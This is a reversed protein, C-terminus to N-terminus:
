PDSYNFSYGFSFFYRLHPDDTNKSIGASIPGLRSRFSAEIGYGFSLNEDKLEEISFEEDLDGVPFYRYTGILSTGARLFLNRFAVKQFSIGALGINSASVEEYNYGYARFEGLNVRRRGSIVFEDIFNNSEVDALTLGVGLDGILSITNGLPFFKQAQATVQFYLGPTLGDLIDQYLDIPIKIDLDTSIPVSDVDSQAILTYKSWAIAKAILNIETGSTPFNRDNLSNRFYGLEVGADALRLRDIEQPIFNEFEDAASYSSFYGFIGFSQTLSQTTLIGLRLDHKQNISIDRIDGDQYLPIEENLFNYRFNIALRKEQGTYKYYDFRFKPNQSIDLLFISRSDRGLLDRYTLNLLLGTAFVNDIHLSAFLRGPTKEELDILLESQDQPNLKYEVKHFGNIGFVRRVAKALGTRDVSDNENLNLKSRLLRDSFLNSNDLRISSVVIPDAKPSEIKPKESKIEEALSLFEEFHKKGAAEGAELIDHARTFNGASYEGVEPEIYIDCSDIEARSRKNSGIMAVSMAIEGITEFSENGSLTTSSVNVGIVYDAGMEIVRKVPFNEVLGGDVAYTSDLNVATFAGPMAMSSRVAKYLSGSDFVIAEGTQLDTGICRFPIPFDDFDNYKLSPWLHYQLIETLMQSEILGNPLKVKGESLPFEVMYRNYYEKEEFAISNLPVQNSMILDWDISLIKEEIEDASYGLAYLAGVISGMSTGVIMDPVIGAEEMAKLIGIHAIGKAGGGSLVLGVKPKEQGYSNLFFTCCLIASLLISRRCM